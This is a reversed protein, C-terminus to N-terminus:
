ARLATAKPKDSPLPAELLEAERCLASAFGYESMEMNATVLKKAAELSNDGFERCYEIAENVNEFVRGTDLEALTKIKM